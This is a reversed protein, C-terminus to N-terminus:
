YTISLKLYGQFLLKILLGCPAWSSGHPIYPSEVGRWVETNVRSSQLVGSETWVEGHKSWFEPRKGSELVYKKSADSGESVRPGLEVYVYM